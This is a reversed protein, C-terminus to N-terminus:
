KMIFKRSIKTGDRFTIIAIHLGSISNDIVVDMDGREAKNKEFFVSQGISNVIHVSKIIENGKVMFNSGQVPNPFFFVDHQKAPDNISYNPDCECDHWGLNDWIDATIHATDQASWYGPVTDWENHVMFYLYPSQLTGPNHKVGEKVSAKRILTHNSTWSLWWYTGTAYNLSDIDCWGYVPDEGIKGFIAVFTGSIHEITIADNGNMYMPAPYAHDTQDALARLVSDCPPYDGLQETQGNTFVFTSYPQITGSLTTIGGDAATNDGNSYRKVQYASLDIANATPNYIEIAKNNGTGEVYESIFIDSCDQANILNAVFLSFFLLLFITYAIRLM